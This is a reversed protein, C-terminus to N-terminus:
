AVVPLSGFPYGCDGAVVGIGYEGAYADEARISPCLLLVRLPSLTWM